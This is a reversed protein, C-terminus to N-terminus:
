PSEESRRAALADDIPLRLEFFAGPGVGGALEARNGGRLSGGHQAAIERCIALGLGTSGRSSVFPEFIRDALEAPLGPGQDLVRVVLDDADRALELRVEGPGKDNQAQAANMLLNLIVQGLTVRDGSIRPLAPAAQLVFRIGAFPKAGRLFDLTERALVELDVAATQSHHPAAFALFRGVVAAVRAAGEQVKGLLRPADATHGAALDEEIMQLYRGLGELPNNIEHALGAALRGLTSLREAHFLQRELDRRREQSEREAELRTARQIQGMALAGLVLALIVVAANLLITDRLSSALHDVVAIPQAGQRRLVWWQGSAPWLNERLPMEAWAEGDREVWKPAATELQGGAPRRELRLEAELGPAALALLRRPDIWAELRAGPQAAAKARPDRSAPEEQTPEDLPLVLGLWEHVLPMPLTTSLIRPGEETWGALELPPGLGDFLGVRTIAPNARLFSLLILEVEQQTARRAPDAFGAASRAMFRGIAPAQSLFLVDAHHKALAAEFTRAHIETAKALDQRAQERALQRAQVIGLWAFVQIAGLLVLLVGM